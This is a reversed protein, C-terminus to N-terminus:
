QVKHAPVDPMGKDWGDLVSLIVRKIAARDSSSSIYQARGETFVFLSFGVREGALAELQGDLSKAVQQLGESVKKM